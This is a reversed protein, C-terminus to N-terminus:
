RNVEEKPHATGQTRSAPRISAESTPIPRQRKKANKSGTPSACPSVPPPEDVGNRRELALERLKATAPGTNSRSKQTLKLGTAREREVLYLDAPLLGQNYPALDTSLQFEEFSLNRGNYDVLVRTEFDHHNLRTSLYSSHLKATSFLSEACTSTTPISHFREILAKIRPLTKAEPTKSWELATKLDSSKQYLLFTSWEAQVSSATMTENLYALDRNEKSRFSAWSGDVVTPVAPECETESDFDQSLAEGSAEAFLMEQAKPDTWDRWMEQFEEFSSRLFAKFTLNTWIRLPVSTSLKLDVAVSGPSPVADSDRLDMSDLSTTSPPTTQSTSGSKSNVKRRPQSRVKDTSSTKKPTSSSLSSSSKLPPPVDAPSTAQHPFLENSDDYESEEELTSELLADMEEEAPLPAFTETSLLHATETAHLFKAVFKARNATDFGLALSNGMSLAFALKISPDVTTFFRTRLSGLFDHIFGALAQAHHDPLSGWLMESALMHIGFACDFLLRYHPGYHPAARLRINEIKEQTLDVTLTAIERLLQCMYKLAPHDSESYTSDPGLFSRCCDREMLTCFRNLTLYKGKWRTDNWDLFKLPEAAHLQAHEDWAMYNKSSAKLRSVPDRILRQWIDKCNLWAYEVCLNVKHVACGVSTAGLLKAVKLVNRANNTTIHSVPSELRLEKLVSTVFEALHESSTSKEHPRCAIAWHKLIGTDSVM